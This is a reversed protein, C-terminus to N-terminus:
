LSWFIMVAVKFITYKMTLMRMEYSQVYVELIETFEPYFIIISGRPLIDIETVFNLLTNKHSSHQEKEACV